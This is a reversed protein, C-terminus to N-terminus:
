SEEGKAASLLAEIKAFTDADCANLYGPYADKVANRWQRILNLDEFTLCPVAPQPAAYYMPTVPWGKKRWMDAIDAKYTTASKDTLHDETHWAAAEGQGAHQGRQMAKRIKPAWWLPHGIVTGEPMERELWQEFSESM